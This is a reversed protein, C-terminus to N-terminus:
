RRAITVGGDRVSFWCSNGAQPLIVDERSIASILVQGPMEILHNFFSRNRDLDLESAVDDLLLIPPHGNEEHLLQVECRKLALVCSRHEGQSAFPRVERNGILAAFDDRHPGVLTIRRRREENAREHFARALCDRMSEKTEGDSEPSPSNRPAYRLLLSAGRGAIAAYALPLFRNIAAIGQARLVSLEAGHEILQTKWGDMQRELVEGSIEDNQLLRNRQILAQQYKRHTPRYTPYLQGLLHDLFARREAPGEKTLRLAEPAFLVTTLDPFGRCKKGNRFFQKGERGIEAVVQDKMDERVWEAEAIAEEAGWLILDTTAATRFSRGESLFYLAEIINTKGQANDGILVNLRPHLDLRLNTYNRFNQLGLYSLYM